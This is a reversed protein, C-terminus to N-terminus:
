VAGGRGPRGPQWPPLVQGLSHTQLSDPRGAHLSAETSHTTIHQTTHHPASHTTTYAATHHATSHWVCTVTLLIFSACSSSRRAALARWDEPVLALSRELRLWATMVTLPSAPQSAPQTPPHPPPPAPNPFPPSPLVPSSSPLPPSPCGATVPPRRRRSAEQRSRMNAATVAMVPAQHTHTHTTHLHFHVWCCCCGGASPCQDRWCCCCRWSCAAQQCVKLLAVRLLLPLSLRLQTKDIQRTALPHLAGAVRTCPQPLHMDTGTHGQTGSARSVAAPSPWSVARMNTHEEACGNSQECVWVSVARCASVTKHTDQTTDRSGAAQTGPTATVPLTNCDVARQHRQRAAQLHQAVVLLVRAVLLDDGVSLALHTHQQQQKCAHAAVVAQTCLPM